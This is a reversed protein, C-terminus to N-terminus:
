ASQGFVPPIGSKGHPSNPRSVTKTHTRHRRHASSASAARPPRSSSNSSSGHKPPLQSSPESASIRDEEVLLDDGSNSNLVELQREKSAALSILSEVQVQIASQNVKRASTAAAHHSADASLAARKQVAKEKMAIITSMASIHEHLSTGGPSVARQGHSRHHSASLSRGTGPTSRSGGGSVPTHSADPQPPPPPTGSMQQQHQSLHSSVHVGTSVQQQHLHSSVHVGGVMM